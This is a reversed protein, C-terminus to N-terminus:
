YTQFHQEHGIVFIHHGDTHTNFHFFDSFFSMLLAYIFGPIYTNENYVKNLLLLRNFLFVQFCVFLWAIIQYAVVSRGFIFDIIGYVIASLPAMNEWIESYLKSGESFKEGVLMYSLEPVTIEYPGIMAPIRMALLLLFIVILRYPDNLRFFTLM